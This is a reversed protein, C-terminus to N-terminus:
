RTVNSSASPVGFKLLDTCTCISAPTVRFKVSYIQFFGPDLSTKSRNKGESMDFDVLYLLSIDKRGFGHIM